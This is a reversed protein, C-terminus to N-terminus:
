KMNQIEYESNMEVLMENYVYVNKNCGDDMMGKLSNLNGINNMRMNIRRLVNSCMRKELLSNTICSYLSEILFNSGDTGFSRYVYRLLAPRFFNVFFVVISKVDFQLSM